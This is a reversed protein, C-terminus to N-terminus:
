NFVTRCPQPFNVTEIKETPFPFSSGRSQRPPRVFGLPVYHRFSFVRLRIRKACPDVPTCGFDLPFPHNQLGSHPPSVMAFRFIFFLTM